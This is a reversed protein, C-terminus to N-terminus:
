FLRLGFPVDSDFFGPDDGGGGSSAPARPAPAQRQGGGQQGRAPAEGGGSGARDPNSDMFEVRMAVVEVVSRKKGTERDEWERVQLRGEVLAKRGKGLYQGVFEATKEWAVVTIWEAPADRKFSDMALRFSCVAKGQPTTKMEPDAGLRGSILVVNPM